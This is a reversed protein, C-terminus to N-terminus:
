DNAVAELKPEPVPEPDILNAVRFEVDKLSSIHHYLQERYERDDPGTQEWENLAVERQKAIAASLILKAEATADM